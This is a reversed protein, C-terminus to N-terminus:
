FQGADGRVDPTEAAAVKTEHGLDILNQDLRSPDCVGNM